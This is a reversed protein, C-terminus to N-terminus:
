LVGSCPPSSPTKLRKACKKEFHYRVREVHTKGSTHIIKECKLCSVIGDDVLVQDWVPDQPRGGRRPALLYQRHSPVAGDRHCAGRGMRPAAHADDHQLIAEVIHRVTSLLCLVMAGLCLLAIAPLVSRDRLTEFAKNATELHQFALSLLQAVWHQLTLHRLLASVPASNISLM